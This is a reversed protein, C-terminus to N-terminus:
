RRMRRAWKSVRPRYEEHVALYHVDRRRPDNEARCWYELERAEIAARWRKRAFWRLALEGFIYLGFGAAVVAVAILAPADQRTM